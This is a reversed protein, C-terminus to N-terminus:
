EVPVGPRLIRNLAMLALSILMEERVEDSVAWGKREVQDIHPTLGFAEAMVAAHVLDESWGEPAPATLPELMTTLM